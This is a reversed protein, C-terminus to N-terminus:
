GKTKRRMSLFAVLALGALFVAGLSSFAAIKPTGLVIMFAVLFGTVGEGGMLGTAVLVGEHERARAKRKVFFRALGGVALWVALGLGLFAGIGFAMMEVPSKKKLLKFSTEIVFAIGFGILFAEPFAFGAISGAVLKAQMAPLFETFMQSPFANIIVWLALPAAIGAFVATIMDVTIIDKARTGIIKASKFDHGIDGAVAATISVFCVILFVSTFPLPLLLLGFVWTCLLGVVIGFQELPDINTEGTMRSAIPTVVLCSLVALAAALPNVGAVILVLAGAALVVPTIKAYIGGEEQKFLPAFIRKANPAIYATFFGMGAGLVIGMGLTQTFAIANQASWGNLFLVPILLLWGALAGFFWSNISTKPGLIYGIGIALPMAQITFFVGYTALFGLSIGLPIFFDRTLAFLGALLGIVAVLMAAKGGALGAKLVEAGAMGSPFPLNERDVFTRRLPISLLVGLVGALSAVAILVPLSPMAIEVGQKQLFLIGPITFVVGSAVLGGITAGAQAVNIEHISTKRSIASVGKLIGGSAIVSFIIPWPLASIRLAIYSSAAALFLTLSVAVLVARLTIGRKGKKEGALAKKGSGSTKKMGDGKKEPFFEFWFVLKFREDIKCENIAKVIKKLKRAISKKTKLPM